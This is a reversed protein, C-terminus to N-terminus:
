SLLYVIFPLRMTITNKQTPQIMPTKLLNWNSVCVTEMYISYANISCTPILMPELLFRFAIMECKCGFISSIGNPVM